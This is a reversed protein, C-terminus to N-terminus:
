GFKNREKLIIEEWQLVSIGINKWNEFCKKYDIESIAKLIRLSKKKILEFCGYLVSAQLLMTAVNCM